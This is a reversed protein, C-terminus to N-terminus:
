TGGRCAEEDGTMGAAMARANARTAAVYTEAGSGPPGLADTWLTEGVRAGAERAVARELRPDLASEPFIARVEERRITRVLRDTAGASPQAQGSLSPILAGIVEVDYRAAFYGLSDHSTVLKRQEGPVSAMCRAIERDLERLEAVYRDANRRYIEAGAPDADALADRLAAVARVANRPDQWWHPDDGRTQVHEILVVERADGGANALVDELWEDLDGGSRVVLEAEAVARADSPRPEYEHPDAAPTLLARVDVRDGGVNSLLDATHTTTAVAGVGSAAETGDGCGVAGVAGAAACLLTVALRM